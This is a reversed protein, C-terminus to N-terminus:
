FQHLASDPLQVGQFSSLDAVVQAMTLLSSVEHNVSNRTVYPTLFQTSYDKTRNSYFIILHDILLFTM